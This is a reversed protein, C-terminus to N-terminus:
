NPNANSVKWDSGDEHEMPEMSWYQKGVIIRETRRFSMHDMEREKGIRVGGKGCDLSTQHPKPKLSSM